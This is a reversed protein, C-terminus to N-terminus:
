TAVDPIKNKSNLKIKYEFLHERSHVLYDDLNFKENCIICPERANELILTLDDINKEGAIKTIDEKWEVIQQIENIKKEVTDIFCADLDNHVLHKNSSIYLNLCNSNKKMREASKSEKIKGIITKGVKIHNHLESYKPQLKSWHDNHITNFIYNWHKSALSYNKSQFYHVGTFLHSLVFASLHDPDRDIWFESCLPIFESMKLNFELSLKAKWNKTNATELMKGQIDFLNKTAAQNQNLTDLTRPTEIYSKMSDVLINCFNETQVEDRCKSYANGLSWVVYRFRQNEFSYDDSEKIWSQEFHQKIRELNSFILRDIYGTVTNSLGFGQFDELIKNHNKEYEVIMMKLDLQSENSIPEWTNDEDGYDKWKLFYEVRENRFRKDIYPLLAFCFM